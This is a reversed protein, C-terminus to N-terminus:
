SPQAPLPSIHIKPPAPRVKEWCTLASDLLITGAKHLREPKPKGAKIKEYLAGAKSEIEPRIKGCWTDPTFITRALIQVIEVDGNRATWCLTEDRANVDAGHALLVKVTEMHGSGAAWCLAQDDDAHVNAGAALLVKVTEVYGDLASGRLAHDDGAHVNAGAALLVRVTETHGNCAADTLRIDLKKQEDLSM